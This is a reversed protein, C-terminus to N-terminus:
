REHITVDIAGDDVTLMTARTAPAAGTVSGPNLLRVGDVSTDLVEHTHGAIGVADAGGEERVVRAVRSEYGRPSGSGHTVVFPVGEVVLTTVAPLGLNRPDVNGHVATLRGGALYEVEDLLGQSTLDGAHVVHDAARIRERFTDPIASARDPVHSDSIVAIRIM